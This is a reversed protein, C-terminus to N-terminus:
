CGGGWRVVVYWLNVCREFEDQGADFYGDSNANCSLVSGCKSILSSTVCTSKTWDLFEQIWNPGQQTNYEIALVRNFADIYAAQQAPTSYDNEYAVMNTPYFGFYADRVAIFNYEQTGEEALQNLSLGLEIKGIGVAM